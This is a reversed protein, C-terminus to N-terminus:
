TLAANPRHNIQGVNGQLMARKAIEETPLLLLNKGARLASHNYKIYAPQVPPQLVRRTLPMNKTKGVV